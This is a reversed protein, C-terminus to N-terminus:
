PKDQEKPSIGLEEFVGDAIESAIEYRSSTDLSPINKKLNEAILDRIRERKSNM